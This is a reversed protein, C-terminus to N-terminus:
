AEFVFNLVPECDATARYVKGAEDKLTKKAEKDCDPTSAM